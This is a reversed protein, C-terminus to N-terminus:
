FHISKLGCLDDHVSLDMLRVLQLVCQILNTAAGQSDVAGLGQLVEAQLSRGCLNKWGSESVTTEFRRLAIIWCTQGGGGRGRETELIPWNLVPLFRCRTFAAIRLAVFFFFSDAHWGFAVEGMPATGLAPMGLVRTSM